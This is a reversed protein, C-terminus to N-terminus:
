RRRGCEASLPDFDAQDRQPSRGSKRYAEVAQRIEEETYGPHTVGLDSSSAGPFHGNPGGTVTSGASGMASGDSFCQFVRGDALGETYILRHAPPSQWVAWVGAAIAVTILGGILVSRILRSRM